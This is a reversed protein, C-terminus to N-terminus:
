QYSDDVGERWAIEKISRVESSELMSLYRQGCTNELVNAEKLKAFRRSM